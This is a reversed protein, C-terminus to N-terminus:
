AGGTPSAATQDPSANAHEKLLLYDTKHDPHSLGIGHEPTYVDRWGKTQMWHLLKIPTISTRITPRLDCNIDLRISDIPYDQQLDDVLAEVAQYFNQRWGIQQSKLLWQANLAEIALKTLSM